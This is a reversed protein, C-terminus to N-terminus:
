RVEDIKKSLEYKSYQEPKEIGLKLAYEIQKKSPLTGQKTQKRDQQIQRTRLDKNIEQYCALIFEPAWDDNMETWLRKILAKQFNIVDDSCM